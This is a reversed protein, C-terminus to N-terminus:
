LFSNKKWFIGPGGGGLIDFPGHRVLYRKHVSLLCIPIENLKVPRQGTSSFVSLFPTPSDRSGTVM